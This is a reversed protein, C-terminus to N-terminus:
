FYVIISCHGIMRVLSYLLCLLGNGWEGWLKALVLDHFLRFGRPCEQIALISSLFFLIVYEFALTGFTRLVRSVIQLHDFGVLDHWVLIKACGSRSLSGWFERMKTGLGQCALELLFLRVYDVVCLWLGVELSGKGWGISLSVWREYCYVYGRGSSIIYSWSLLSLVVGCGFRVVCM